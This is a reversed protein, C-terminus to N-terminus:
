ASEEILADEQEEQWRALFEEADTIVEHIFQDVDTIVWEQDDRHDGGIMSAIHDEDLVVYHIGETWTGAGCRNFYECTPIYGRQEAWREPYLDAYGVQMESKLTEIHIKQNEIETGTIM